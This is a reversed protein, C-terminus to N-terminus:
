ISTKTIKRRKVPPRCAVNSPAVHRYHEVMMYNLRDTDNPINEYTRLLSNFYAHLSEAGQEGMLGLGVNWETLWPVVHSELMHMKPTVTASRFQQRYYAMFSSINGGTLSTIQIVVKTQPDIKSLDTIDDQTVCSKDYVEHCKAFLSFVVLFRRSISEAKAQISPNFRRAM